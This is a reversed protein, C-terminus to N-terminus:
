CASLARHLITYFVAVVSGSCQVQVRFSKITSHEYLRANLHTSRAWGVTDHPDNPHQWCDIMM